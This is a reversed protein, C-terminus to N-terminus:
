KKFFNTINNNELGLQQDLALYIKKFLDVFESQSEIHKVYFKENKSSSNFDLKMNLRNYLHKVIAKNQDNSLPEEMEYGYLVHQLYNNYKVCEPWYGIKLSFQDIEFVIYVDFINSYEYVDASTQREKIFNILAQEINM